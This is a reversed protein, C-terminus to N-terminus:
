IVADRDQGNGARTADFQPRDVWGGGLVEVEEVSEVRRLSVGAHHGQGLTSEDEDLKRAIGHIKWRSGQVGHVREVTAAQYTSTPDRFRGQDRARVQEQLLQSAGSALRVCPRYVDVQEAAESAGDPRPGGLVDLGHHGHKAISIPVLQLRHM